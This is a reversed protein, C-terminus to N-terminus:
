RRGENILDRVTLKAGLTVGQRMQKIAAKARTHQDHQEADDHIPKIVAVPTGHRTIVITDGHEVQKLLQSFHTKAEFAGIKNM